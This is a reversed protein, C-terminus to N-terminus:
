KGEDILGITVRYGEKPAAPDPEAATVSYQAASLGLDALHRQLISNRRQHGAQAEADDTPRTVLEFNLKLSEDKAALDAMQDIAYFQESTFDHEAPDIEIFPEDGNGALDGLLRAPSTAVKVILNGLTKWVLKMYDFEPSDINGAVPVDLIVKDDKDKLIYLAAKVPLHLKSKVSRDRDGLTPKYIDIRNKGNLQSNRITNNSTFSFVGEAFPMGFYALMYPSLDSLHLNKISLRLSQNQKWDSINGNWDAMLAGGHPLGAFIRANNSGSSTLNDAEIRIGTVPFAFGGPLTHDAYTLNIDTLALRCVRLQLPRPAPPVTSATDAKVDKDENEDKAPILLRSLTNTSDAFLEYAATLGDLTVSNIDFLNQSLVMKGLDAKLSRLSAVSAKSSDIVDVDSISLKAAVAMDMIHELNGSATASLSLRGKIEDIHARDAIYAKAQDLAIDALNLSIDFDNTASNMDANATLTGGGALSVALDADTRETGGISFDPVALNLGKLGLHSQRQLDAYGIHGDAFRINHLKIIWSSPTTDKPEEAEASDKAFHDLISSFNFQTGNQVVNVDLGALTIHRVYVTKGLLRLLSVGIDLTDFGAFQTKGDEECVSLGNVAVRGTFLNIGVHEVAAKRGILEEAHRNVYSKAACGGFLSVLLFLLVIFAAICGLTIFIIKLTKKM